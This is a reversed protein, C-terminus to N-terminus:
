RRAAAVVADVPLPTKSRSLFGRRLRLADDTAFRWDSAMNRQLEDDLWRARMLGTRSHRTTGILLHGIEHAIVRGLLTGADVHTRAVTAEIRDALITVLSGSHQSSDILSYGLAGDNSRSAGSAIRVLVETTDVAEDCSLNSSTSRERAQCERWGIDIGADKLLVQATTHAAAMDGPAVGYADYTRVPLLRTAEPVAAAASALGALIGVTAVLARKFM